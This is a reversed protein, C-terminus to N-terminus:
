RRLWALSRDLPFGQFYFAPRTGPNRKRHPPVPNPRVTNEPERHQDGDRQEVVRRLGERDYGKQEPDCDIEHILGPYATVDHAQGPGRGCPARVPLRSTEVDIPV